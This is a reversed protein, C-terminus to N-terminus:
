KTLFFKEIGPMGEWPRWMASARYYDLEAQAYNAMVDFSASREKARSMEIRASARQSEEYRYFVGLAYAPLTVGFAVKLLDM